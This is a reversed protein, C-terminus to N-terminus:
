NVDALSAMSSRQLLPLLPGAHCGFDFSSSSQIENRISHVCAVLMRCQSCIRGVSAVFAGQPRGSCLVDVSDRAEESPWDLWCAPNAMVPLVVFRPHARCMCCAFEYLSKQASLTHPLTDITEPSRMQSGKLCDICQHGMRVLFESNKRWDDLNGAFINWIRWVETASLSSICQELIEWRIETKCKVMLMLIKQMNKITKKQRRLALLKRKLFLKRLTLLKM